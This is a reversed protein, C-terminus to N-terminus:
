RNKSGFGQSVKSGEDSQMSSAGAPPKKKDQKPKKKERNSRKQGKAM